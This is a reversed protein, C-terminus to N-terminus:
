QCVLLLLFSQSQLAAVAFLGFYVFTWGAAALVVLSCLDRESRTWRGMSWLLVIEGALSLAVLPVEPRSFVLGRSRHLDKLCRLADLEYIRAVSATLFIVLLILSSQRLIALPSVGPIAVPRDRQESRFPVPARVLCLLAGAAFCAAGLRNAM